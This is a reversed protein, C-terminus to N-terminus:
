EAEAIWSRFDPLAAEMCQRGAAIGEAMRNFDLWRFTELDPTVVFADLHEALQVRTLRRQVIHLANGVVDVYQGAIHGVVQNLVFPEVHQRQIRRRTQL